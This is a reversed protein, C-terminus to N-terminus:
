RAVIGDDSGASARCERRAHCHELWRRVFCGASANGPVQCADCRRGFRCRIPVQLDAVRDERFTILGFNEYACATGGNRAAGSDVAVINPTFLRPTESRCTQAIGPDSAPSQYRRGVVRVAPLPRKDVAVRIM